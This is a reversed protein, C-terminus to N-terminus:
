VVSKRRTLPTPVAIVVAECTALDAYRTSSRLRDGLALLRDSSVDEIHSRHANLGEVVRQSADVGVVSHGEEALAVALPLGVYGLGVIGVNM